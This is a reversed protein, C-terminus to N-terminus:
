GNYNRTMIIMKASINENPRDPNKIMVSNVSLENTKDLAMKKIQDSNELTQLKKDSIIAVFEFDGADFCKLHKVMSEVFPKEFVKWPTAIGWLNRARFYTIGLPDIGNLHALENTKVFQMNPLTKIAEIIKTRVIEYSDSSACYDSGYVMWLRKLIDTKSDVVGVVYIIDKESWTEAERCEKTIMPNTSKLTHKPYSSNLPMSSGSSSLKKIEIADGGRLLADPPNNQNGRYSFTSNLLRERTRKAKLGLSGAFLDKVFEELSVGLANITNQRYSVTSIKVSKLSCISAIADIINRSPM